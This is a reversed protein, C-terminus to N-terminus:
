EALVAFADAKEETTAVLGMGNTVRRYALDAGYTAIRLARKGIGKGLSTFTRYPVTEVAEFGAFALKNELEVLKYHRYHASSVDNKASPVSIVFKGGPALVRRAEILAELEESDPIHELCELMTVVDFSATRFPLSTKAQMVRLRPDGGHAYGLAEIIPDVVMVRAGSNALLTAMAGDGGGFDLAAIGELNEPLLKSAIDYRITGMHFQRRHYAGREIYQQAMEEEPNM